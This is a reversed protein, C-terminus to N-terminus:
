VLKPNSDPTSIATDVSVSTGPSTCVSEDQDTPESHQSEGVSETEQQQSDEALDVKMNGESRFLMCIYLM